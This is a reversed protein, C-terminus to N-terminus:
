TFGETTPGLAPPAVVFKECSSTRTVPSAPVASPIGTPLAGTRMRMAEVGANPVSLTSVVVDGTRVLPEPSAEARKM